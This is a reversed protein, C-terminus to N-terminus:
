PGCNSSDSAIHAEGDEIKILVGRKELVMWSEDDYALCVSRSVTSMLWDATQVSRAERPFPIMSSPVVM